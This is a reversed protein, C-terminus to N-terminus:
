SGASWIGPDKPDDKKPPAKLDLFDFYTTGGEERKVIRIGDCMGELLIETDILSQKIKTAVDTVTVSGGCSRAYEIVEQRLKREGPMFEPFEYVIGGESTLTSGGGYHAAVEELLKEAARKSIKYKYMVDGLKLVGDNEKITQLLETTRAETKARQKKKRSRNVLFVLLGAILVCFLSCPNFVLDRMAAFFSFPAVPVKSVKVSLFDAMVNQDAFLGFNKGSLKDTRDKVSGLSDANLYLHFKHRAQSIRLKFPKSADFTIQSPGLLKTKTGAVNKELYFTGQRNIFFGYYNDVDEFNVVIGITGEHTWEVVRVNAELVYKKELTKKWTFFGAETNFITYYGKEYKAKQKDYWSTTRDRFNDLYFAKTDPPYDATTDMESESFDFVTTLRTTPGTLILDDFHAHVESEAKLGIYGRRFVVGSLKNVQKGNIFLEFENSNARVRLHNVGYKNIESSRTWGIEDKWEKNIYSGLRYLGTAKIEFSYYNEFDKMRLLLGYARGEAGSVFETKAEYVFDDYLKKPGRILRGKDALIHYQGHQQYAYLSTSWTDSPKAFDEQYTVQGIVGCYLGSLVFLGFLRM